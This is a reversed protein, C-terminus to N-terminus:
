WNVDSVYQVAVTHRTRWDVEMTLRLASSDTQFLSRGGSSPVLIDANPADDMHLTAESSLAISPAAGVGKVLLSADVLAVTRINTSGGNNVGFDFVSSELVPYGNLTGGVLEDRFYFAGTASRLQMLALKKTPHMVWVPQTIPVNAAYMASAMASLDAIADDAANSTNSATIAAVANDTHFLGSPAGNAAAVNSLFKRDLVTATDRLMADRLIVELSPTSRALVERTAVTIVGMKKPTMTISTFAGTKVPIAGGEAVFGGPVGTTMKPIRVLDTGAFSVSSGAPFRSYVSMPRLLDIFDQVEENVLEGAWAAVGTTAGTTGARLVAGMEKDGLHREAYDAAVMANGGALYLLHAQRAFWAGKVKQRKTDRKILIGGSSSGTIDDEDRPEVKKAQSGLLAETEELKALRADLDAVSKKVEDFATTEEENLARDEDEAAKVVGEMKTLLEARKARAAEIQKAFM